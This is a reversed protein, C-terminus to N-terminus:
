VPSGYASEIPKHCHDCHMDDDEYNVDAADIAWGGHSNHRHEGRIAADIEAINDNVCKPCIVGGDTFIYFLPYGGPWAFADLPKRNVEMKLARRVRKFAQKSMIAGTM